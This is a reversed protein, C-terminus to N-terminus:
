RDNATNFSNECEELAEMPDTGDVLVSQVANNLDYKWGIFPIENSPLWGESFANIMIELYRNADTIEIADVTSKRCPAQGGLEVWKLDSETAYMKELFKGAMEKNESGSWVGAFWGDIITNGPITTIQITSGDFSAADRVSALRVGSGICMAYKGSAYETYIDEISTNVCEAPTIGMEICDLTWNLAELGIENAWNATGDENFLSGQKDVIYNLMLQPDNSTTAFSQGLGYVMQGTEEDEYTLAKAAEIIEDWTTPVELGAAELLDERYYLVICNKNLTLTYHQGDREGFQFYADDIDAIEEESWEGLFLNELPELAGANLVGCLEDRACWIIDPADGTTTAALFKATMTNWDQPEVVVKVGENEAEFEEIMQSLAVARGNETNAPDLFTWMRVTTDEAFATSALCGAGIAATIMATLLKKKM